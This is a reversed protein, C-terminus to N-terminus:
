KEKKIKTGMKCVLLNLCLNVIEKVPHGGLDLCPAIQRGLTVESAAGAEPSGPVWTVRGRLPPVQRGELSAGWACGSSCDWSGMGILLGLTQEPLIRWSHSQIWHPVYTDRIHTM